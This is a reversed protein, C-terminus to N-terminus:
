VLKCIGDTLTTKKVGKAHIRDSSLRLRQRAANNSEAALKTRETASDGHSRGHGGRQGLQVYQEKNRSSAAWV